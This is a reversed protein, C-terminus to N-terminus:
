APSPWCGGRRRGSAAARRRGPQFAFRLRGDGRRRGAPGESPRPGAPGRGRGVGGGRAAQGGQLRSVGVRLAAFPPRGDARQRRAAGDGAHLRPGGGAPRRCAASEGAAGPGAEGRRRGPRATGPRRRRPRPRRCVHDAAPAEGGPRGLASRVAPSEGEGSLPGALAAAAAFAEQATHLCERRLAAQEQDDARLSRAYQWAAEGALYRIAPVAGDSSQGVASPSAQWAKYIALAERQKGVAPLLTTELAALTTQNKLVALAEPEDPQTLLEVFVAMAQMPRAWNRGAAPRAWAPTFAPWIATTSTSFRGTNSPRRRLTRRTKRSAPRIPGPSRWRREPWPWNRKCCAEGCNTGSRSRRSTGPTSSDRCSACRRTSGSEPPPSSTEAERCLARAAEMRRQRRRGAPDLLGAQEM